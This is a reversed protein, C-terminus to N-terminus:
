LDGKALLIDVATAPEMTGYEAQGFSVALGKLVGQECMACVAAGRFIWGRRLVALPVPLFGGRLPARLDVSDIRDGYSKVM